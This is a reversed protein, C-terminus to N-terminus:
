AAPSLVVRLKRWAEWTAPHPSTDGDRRVMIRTAKGGRMGTPRDVVELRAMM